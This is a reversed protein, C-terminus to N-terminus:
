HGIIRSLRHQDVIRKMPLGCGFRRAVIRHQTGNGRRKRGVPAHPQQRAIKAARDDLRARNGRIAPRDFGRRAEEVILILHESCELRAFEVAVADDDHAELPRAGVAHGFEVLEGRREAHQLVAAVADRQEGIAAHRPRAALHRRHDVERGLRQGAGVPDAAREGTQLVAVHHADTRYPRVGAM